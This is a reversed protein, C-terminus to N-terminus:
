KVKQTWCNGKGNHIADVLSTYNLNKIVNYPGDHIEVEITYGGNNILFIISKLDCCIMISINQATVQSGFYSKVNARFVDIVSQAYGLTGSVSWGISGYKMQFHYRYGEAIKLKQCNLWSDGIEAIMVNDDSLMKQVHQFLVNVRLPENPQSKRPTEEPVFIRHYNEYITEYAIM